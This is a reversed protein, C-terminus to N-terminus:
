LWVDVILYSHYYPCFVLSMNIYKYVDIYLLLVFAPIIYTFLIIVPLPKTTTSPRMVPLIVSRSV